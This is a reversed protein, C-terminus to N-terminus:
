KWHKRGSKAYRRAPFLRTVLYGLATTVHQERTEAEVYQAGPKLKVTELGRLLTKCRPRIFLSVTGDADKLMANMQNHRERVPPNTRPVDQRPFGTDAIIQYNTTKSRTDRARGAAASYIIM